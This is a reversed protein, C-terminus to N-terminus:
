HDRRSWMCRKNSTQHIVGGFFFQLMSILLMIFVFDKASPNYSSIREKLKEVKPAFLQAFIAIYAFSLMLHFVSVLTPLKYIFNIAGLLSQLILLFLGLRVSKEKPRQILLVTNLVIIIGAFARHLIPYISAKDVAPAYCIPWSTCELGTFDASVLGGIVILGLTLIINIFALTRFM